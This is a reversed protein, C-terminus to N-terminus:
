IKQPPLLLLQKNTCLVVQDPTIIESSHINKTKGLKYEESSLYGVLILKRSATSMNARM